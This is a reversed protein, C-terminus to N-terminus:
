ASRFGWCDDAIVKLTRVLEPIRGWGTYLRRAREWASALSWSHPFVAAIEEVTRDHRIYLFEMLASIVQGSRLEVPVLKAQGDGGLVRLLEFARSVQSIRGDKMARTIAAPSVVSNLDAVDGPLQLQFGAERAARNVLNELEDGALLNAKFKHDGTVRKATNLKVFLRAEQERTMNLSVVALIEKPAPRGLEQMLLLSRYRTQGDIIYLVGSGRRQSLSVTNLALPDFSEVIDQVSSAVLGRQYSTDVHIDSLKVLKLLQGTPLKIGKRLLRLSNGNVLHKTAKM